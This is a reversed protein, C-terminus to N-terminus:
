SRIGRADDVEEHASSAWKPKAGICSEETMQWALESDDLPVRGTVFANGSCRISYLFPSGM